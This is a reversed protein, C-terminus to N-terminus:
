AVEPADAILEWAEDVRMETDAIVILDGKPHDLAEQLGNASATPKTTTTLYFTSSPSHLVFQHEM